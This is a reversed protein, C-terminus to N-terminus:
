DPKFKHARMIRHGLKSVARGLAKEMALQGPWCVKNASPRLDGSAVLLVAHRPFKKPMPGHIRSNDGITHVIRPWTALDKAVTRAGDATVGFMNFAGEGKTWGPPWGTRAHERM